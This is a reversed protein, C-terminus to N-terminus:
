FQWGISFIWSQDWKDKGDAPQNDYDYNFQFSAFLKSILPLRIGTRTRLVWNASEQFDYLFDNHHFVQFLKQFFWMDFDFVWYASFYERQDVNGFNKMKKSYKEYAYGPGLKMSLNKQDSHWVQYGPGIAANALLTLDKFKDSQATGGGWVFWKKTLFREYAGSGLWNDKTLASKSWERNFQGYFKFVHPMKAIKLNGILNYKETNTNGTERSAGASVNGSFRWTEPPKPRSMTEVASLKLPPPVAGEKPKLLLEGTESTSLTGKLPKDEGISVEMPEDTTLKAVQDWSINIDGAYGTKFVLKGQSLSVVTGQIRDGNKMVVEDAMSPCVTQFLIGIVWLAFFLGTGACKGKLFGMLDFLGRRFLVVLGRKHHQAIIPFAGTHTM